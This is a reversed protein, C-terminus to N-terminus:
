DFRTGTADTFQARLTPLPPLIDFRVREGAERRQGDNGRTWARVRRSVAPWQSMRGGRVAPSQEYCLRMADRPVETDADDSLEIRRSVGGEVWAVAGADLVGHWWSVLPDRLATMEIQRQLADNRPIARPNFGSVDVGQLYHLLAAPGPGNAWAYYQTWYDLRGQLAGGAEIVVARREDTTAQWAHAHNTLIVYACRNIGRIADIGKSEYVTYTATVLSKATDAQRPDSSFVAEDLVAFAKDQMHGNFQGAFQGPRNALLGHRGFINLIPTFISNKGSGKADGRASNEGKTFILATDPVGGPNQIKWALWNIVYARTAEDTSVAELVHFWPSVDGAEPAVAYGQWLNLVGPPMDMGPAFVVGEYQRRQPHNLWADALPRPKEGPKTIPAFTGAYRARFAAIEMYEMGYHVGSVEMYPTLFDAMMTKRGLRVQAYRENVERIHEPAGADPSPADETAVGPTATDVIRGLVVPSKIKGRHPCDDCPGGAGYANAWADCTAPGGTLSDSKKTTDAGDYGEHGSSIDHAYAEGETSHKATGVALIWVPYPTDRGNHAAALRMAGCRGAAKVYSFRFHTTGIAEANIDADAAAGAPPKDSYEAADVGALRAFEELTYNQRRWRWATVPHGTDQHVSGPARMICASNTTCQADIKLGVGGARRVLREALACWQTNSLLQDFVYHLHIGGSGTSVIHTPVLGTTQVFDRVATAAATGDKYGKDPGDKKAYKTPSGEVDVWLSCLGIVNEQSRGDYRVVANDAFAAPTFYGPKRGAAKGTMWAARKADDGRHWQHDSPQNKRGWLVVCQTAGPLDIVMDRYFEEATIQTPTPLKVADAAPQADDPARDPENDKPAEGHLSDM